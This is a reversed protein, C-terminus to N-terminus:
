VIILIKAGMEDVKIVSNGELITGLKIEKVNMTGGIDKIIKSVSGLDDGNCEIVLQKIESNMPMANSTKFKRIASIIYKATEGCREANEDIANSDASPWSLAHVSESKEFKNLYIQFMEETIYPMFISLMKVSNMVLYYLTTLASEKDANSYLRYKIFELYNDAVEHWIFDHLSEFAHAFQYNEIDNTIGIITRNMKSLIWKDMHSTIESPGSFSEAYSAFLRFINWFKTSFKYAFEMNQWNFAVDSSYLGLMILGARITDAGHKLLVDDPLVVNGLSKHMERGDPGLILSNILISKWPKEDTELFCRLITYYTWTRIIDHGQQRLDAPYLKAHLAGNNKWYGSVILPTISSDIWGDCVDTEGAIQGGCGCKDTKYAETSTDVPFHETSFIKDCKLCHWFPIPTGFVRQRSFVWDWDMSTVWNELRIKMHEPFWNIENAIKIADGSRDKVKISWQKMLMFEIPNHCAARETHSLVNHVFKEEKEVRGLMSLEEVIKIRADEIDLSEFQKANKNLTGDENILNVAPLNYRKQWKIDMEDGYTCLYVAGTGFEMDVDPNAMIKAEQGFIPIKATKGIADKYEDDEPNVFISVCAAMMEPRTTAITIKGGGEVDFKIHYLVGDKEVYGVEAKALTTACKTCWMVPHEVREIMGKNFLNVLTKQVFAIYEPSNTTYEYNWDTSYGVRTMYSKMNNICVDTWEKCAELFRKRDSKKIKYDKEVKLETPLGHCDWGQPLLVNYGQMRKFRAIIDNWTWWLVHGMHPVGSTFPPPTDIVYTKKSGAEDFRYVGKEEWYKQLRAESALPDFRKPIDM